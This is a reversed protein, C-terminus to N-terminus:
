TNGGGEDLALAALRLEEAPPRRPQWGTEARFRADDVALSGLMRRLGPHVSAVARLLPAPARWLRPAVGSAAALAAILAPTSWDVDRVFCPGAARADLAVALLADAANARGIMSRRNVVGAFPLPRRSRVARLLRDLNARVGPGYVLPLRLSMAVCRAGCAVAVAEEAELKARGYATSPAAPDAETWARGAPSEEGMAKVSSALVFRRVGAAAAQRALAAAADVTALRLVRADAAAAEHAPAALHIVAGVGDLAAKWDTGPGLDGVEAVGASPEMRGREPRVARVAARWPLGRRTLEEGVARGLFGDAGTVLILPM